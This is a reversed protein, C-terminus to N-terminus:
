SCAPGAAVHLTVSTIDPVLFYLHQRGKSAAYVAKALRGDQVEALAVDAGASMAYSLQDASEWAALSQTVDHLLNGNNLDYTKSRFFPVYLTSGFEVPEKIDGVSTEALILRSEDDTVYDSATSIQRGTQAAAFLRLVKGDSNLLQVRELVL